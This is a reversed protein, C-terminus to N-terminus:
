NEKDDNTDDEEDPNEITVANDKSLRRETLAAIIRNTLRNADMKAEAKERAKAEKEARKLAEQEGRRAEEAERAAAQAAQEAELKEKEAQEKAREAAERAEAEIQRALEADKRAQVEEAAQAEAAKRAQLDAQAKQVQEQAAEKMEQVRAQAEERAKQMQEEAAKRAAQIQEEMQRQAEQIQEELERQTRLIQEEALQRAQQVQEEAERRVEQVQEEAVKQAKQVQEEAEKRAEQVQEEAQKRAEEVQEEAVKQAEELQEQAMQQYMMMQSQSQWRENELQLEAEEKAEEAAKRLATEEELKAEADLQAQTVEEIIVKRVEVDPINYDDVIQEEIKKIFKPKVVSRRKAAAEELKRPDSELLSKFVTYNTILNTYLQIMYEEDFELSSDKVDITYGVDDYSELFQWLKYCTRYNPDKMMLNTRQIPSRVKSCGAMLSCFSSQRLALVMRRVRDIRMFVQMNDSDNEAFSQRNKIKMEIKYEIQEYADDVKSEMKLTNSTEDGTSWFIVDTRKDIFTVLRQILHYIFRNEYLDYSEETTVNLVRTPQIDGNEDSAIFQTNMSLHRVSDATIKKALAVPVVEETTTVFRRPKEIIENIADLSEEIITLWKEDVVKHLVQHTQQLTNSGAQVMEFLYQFYRDNELTKGVKNVYKLYLDNITNAM